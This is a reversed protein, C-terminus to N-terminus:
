PPLSYEVVLTRSFAHIFLLPLSSRRIQGLPLCPSSSYLCLSKYISYCVPFHISLYNIHLCIYPYLFPSIHSLCLPINTYLSVYILQILSIFISQYLSLYIYIYLSLSQILSISLFRFFHFFFSRLRFHRVKSDFEYYWLIVQIM